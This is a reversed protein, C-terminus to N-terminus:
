NTEKRSRRKALLLATTIAVTGLLTMENSFITDENTSPLTGYKSYSDSTGNYSTGPTTTTGYGNSGTTGSGTGGTNPLM